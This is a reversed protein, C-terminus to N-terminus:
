PGFEYGTHTHPHAPTYKLIKASTPRPHKEIIFCVLFYSTGFSRLIAKRGTQNYQNESYFFARGPMREKAQECNSKLAARTRVCSRVGEV